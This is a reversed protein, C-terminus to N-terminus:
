AARSPLIRLRQDQTGPSAGLQFDWFAVRGDHLRLWAFAFGDACGVSEVDAVDDLTAFASALPPPRPSEAM